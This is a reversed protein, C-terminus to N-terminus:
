QFHGLLIRLGRTSQHMQSVKLSSASLQNKWESTLKFGKVETGDFQKVLGEKWYAKGHILGCCGACIKIVESVNKYEQSLKGNNVDERFHNMVKDVKVFLESM